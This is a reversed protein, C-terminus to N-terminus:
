EDEGFDFPLSDPVARRKRPKRSPPRPARGAGAKGPRAPTDFLNAVLREASLIERVVTADPLDEGFHGSAAIAEHGAPTSRFSKVALSVARLAETDGTTKALALASRLLDVTRSAPGLDHRTMLARVRAVLFRAQLPGEGAIGITTAVFSSRPWGRSCPGACFELLEGLPVKGLHSEALIPVEGPVHVDIALRSVLRQLRVIAAFGQAPLVAKQCEFEGGGFLFSATFGLIWTLAPNKAAADLRGAASQTAAPDPKRRVRSLAWELAAFYPGIDENTAEPEEKALTLTAMAAAAQRKRIHEQVKAVLVPLRRGRLEPGLHREVEARDLLELAEQWASRREADGVLYVLPEPDGPRALHWRAATKAAAARDEDVQRTFLAQFTRRSPDAAVAKELLAERDLFEPFRGDRIDQRLCKSCCVGLAHHLEEEDPPFLASMRLHVAAVERGPPPPSEHSRVDLYVYWLGLAEEWDVREMALAIGRVKELKPLGQFLSASLAGPNFDSQVWRAALTLLFRRRAELASPPLAALVREAARLAKEEDEELFGKELDELSARLGGRGGSLREGLEAVPAPGPPAAQAGDTLRLLLPGLPAVASEPPIAAVNRRVSEAEGRYFADIARILLKWPALPSSRSVADLAAMAGQPLPGLTVATFLERVAGAERRLPHGIDLAPSDALVGPDALKRALLESLRRREDGEAGGLAALLGRFGDALLDGEERLAAMRAGAAPIRREVLDCLSRADRDLGEARLQGIRASYARVLLEDTEPGPAKRALEKAAEVAERVKGQDLLEAARSAEEGTAPRRGPATKPTRAM